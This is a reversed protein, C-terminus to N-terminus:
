MSDDDNGAFVATKPRHNAGIAKLSPPIKVQAVVQIAHFYLCYNYYLCLTCLVEASPNPDMVQM